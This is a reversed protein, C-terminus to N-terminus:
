RLPILLPKRALVLFQQSVSKEKKATVEIITVIQPVRNELNKGM